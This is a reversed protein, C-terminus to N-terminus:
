FVVVRGSLAQAQSYTVAHVLQNDANMLRLAGGRNSLQVGNGSLRLTVSECAGLHIGSVAESKNQRDMLKWGDLVIPTTSANFLTVTERGVDEGEPNM